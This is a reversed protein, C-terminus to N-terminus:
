EAKVTLSEVFYQLDIVITTAPGFPDKASITRRFAVDISFQPDIYGLGASLAHSSQNKDYRYGIRLPYHDAALYEFGAMARVNSRSSGDPKTYTTFDAVVDAEVTVDNTGYGLGGGFM